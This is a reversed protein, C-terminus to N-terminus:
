PPLHAASAKASGQHRKTRLGRRPRSLIGANAGAHHRSIPSDFEAQGFHTPEGRDRQSLDQLHKSNGHRGVSNSFRQRPEATSFPTLQTLAVFPGRMHDGANHYQETRCQGPEDGSEGDRFRPVHRHGDDHRQREDEAQQDARHAARDGAARRAAPGADDPTGEDRNGDADDNTFEGGDHQEGTRDVADEVLAGCAARRWVRRRAAEASSSRARCARVASSAATSSALRWRSSARTTARQSYLGEGAQGSVWIVPTGPAPGSVRVAVSKRASVWRCSSLATALRSRM